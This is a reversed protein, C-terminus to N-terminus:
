SVRIFWQMKRKTYTEYDCKKRCHWLASCLSTLWFWSYRYRVEHRIVTHTRIQQLKWHLSLWCKRPAVILPPQEKLTGKKTQRWVARQSSEWCAKRVIYHWVPTYPSERSGSAKLDDKCWQASLFPARRQVTCQVTPPQTPPFQTETSNSYVHLRSSVVCCQM